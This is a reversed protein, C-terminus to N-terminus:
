LGILIAIIGQDVPRMTGRSDLRLIQYDGRLKTIEGTRSWAVPTADIVLFRKAVEDYATFTMSGGKDVTTDLITGRLNEQEIYPLLQQDFGLRIAGTYGNLNSTFTGNGVVIPKPPPPPPPPPEDADDNADNAKSQTVNVLLKLSDTALASSTIALGITALLCTWALTRTIKM